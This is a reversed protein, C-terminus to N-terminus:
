IGRNRRHRNSSIAGTAAFLLFAALYVLAWLSSASIAKYAGWIALGILFFSYFATGLAYLRFMRNPPEPRFAKEYLNTVGLLEQLIFYGDTRILPNLNFLLSRLGAIMIVGLVALGTFGSPRFVLWVMVLVAWIVLELLPGAILVVIRKWREEIFYSDSVDTYLGPVMVILIVGIESVRGGFATLAMAHGSEHILSVLLVGIYAAIVGKLSLLIHASEYFVSIYMFFLVVGALAMSTQVLLGWRAYLIRALPAILDLFRSPDVVPWLMYHWSQKVPMKKQRDFFGFGILSDVLNRADEEDTELARALDSVTHIGDFFSLCSGVRHDLRFFENRAPDKVIFDDDVEQIILDKRIKPLPPM